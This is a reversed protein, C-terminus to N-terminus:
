SGSGGGVEKEMACTWVHDSIGAAMAPTRPYPDALVTWVDGFGFQERKGCHACSCYQRLDVYVNRADPERGECEWCGCTEAHREDGTV